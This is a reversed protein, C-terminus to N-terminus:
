EHHILGITERKNQRTKQEVSASTLLQKLEGSCRRTAHAILSCIHQRYIGHQM